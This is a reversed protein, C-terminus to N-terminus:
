ILRDFGIEVNGYIRNNEDIKSIFSADFNNNILDVLTRGLAGLIATVGRGEKRYFCGSIDLDLGNSISRKVGETFFYRYKSGPGSWIPYGAFFGFVNSPKENVLIEGIIDELNYNKWHRAVEKELLADYNYIPELANIIGYGASIIYINYYGNKIDNVIRQINYRFINYLAGHYIYLATTENSNKKICYDMVKRGAKLKEWMNPLNNLSLSKQPEIIHGSDVKSKCCPIFVLINKRM